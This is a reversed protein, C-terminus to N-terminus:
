VYVHVDIMDVFSTLDSVEINCGLCIGLGCLYPYIHSRGYIVRIGMGACVGVCVSVCMGARVYRCM